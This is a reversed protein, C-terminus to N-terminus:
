QAEKGEANPGEKTSLKFASSGLPTSFPEPRDALDVITDYVRVIVCM